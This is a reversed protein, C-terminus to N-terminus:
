THSNLRRHEEQFMVVEWVHDRMQVLEAAVETLNEQRICHEKIARQINGQLYYDRGNPAALGLARLADQIADVAKDLQEGLDRPKTGNIHVCPVAVTHEVKCFTCSTTM